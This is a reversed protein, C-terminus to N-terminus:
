EPKIAVAKREGAALTIAVSQDKGLRLSRVTYSGPLLPVLPKAATTSWVVKGATDRIEWLVDAITVASDGFGLDVLGAEPRLQTHIEAGARIAVDASASINALGIRGTVRYHGAELEISAPSTSSRAAVAAPKGAEDLREVIYSILDEPLAAGGPLGTMELVLRGTSAPVPLTTIEGAKVVADLLQNGSGKRASVHYLGPPLEFSPNVAASQAVDRRGLPQDPDDESVFYVPAATSSGGTTDAVILLTGTALAFDATKDEGARLDITRELQMDGHRAVVRYNGAPVLLSSLATGHVMSVTTDPTEDSPTSATRYITYATDDAPPADAKAGTAHLLLTGADLNLAAEAANDATVSAAQHVDIAGAAAEVDYDGPPLPAAATAATARFVAQGPKGNVMGRVTWNLPLAYIAGGPSLHASMALGSPGTVVPKTAVAPAPLAIAPPAALAAFADDFLNPASDLSNVALLRGRGAAAICQLQKADAETPGMALVDITLGPEAEALSKATACADQKCGDAQGAILLVKGGGSGLQAAAAKLAESVLAQGRPRVSFVASAFRSMDFPELPRLVAVDDCATRNRAGYAILGVQQGTPPNVLGDKLTKRVVYSKKYNELPNLMTAASDLVVIARPTKAPEAPAPASTSHGKGFMLLWGAALVAALVEPKGTYRNRRM